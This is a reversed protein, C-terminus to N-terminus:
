RIPEIKLKKVQVKKWGRDATLAPVGLQLALALCSCDGLGFGFGQTQADLAAAAYAAEVDHARVDLGFRM